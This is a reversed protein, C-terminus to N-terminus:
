LYLSRHRNRRNAVQNRMSSAVWDPFYGHLCSPLPAPPLLEVTTAHRAGHRLRRRPLPRHHALVYGTWDTMPM